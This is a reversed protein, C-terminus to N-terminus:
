EAKATIKLKDLAAKPNSALMYDMIGFGSASKTQAEITLSGPKEIFRAVAKGLTQANESNGLMSSIVLPTAGAYLAKLADPSAGQEKAAVDLYREFLGRNEVVITASKAKSSLLAASATGEDPSFLDPSVNGILGTLRVSGMDKGDMSFETIAIENTAENWTAAITASGDLSKYGLAQLQQTFEDSSNDPLATSVNRQEFRINTPIGNVPKDATIAVLGMVIRVLEDPNDDTAPAEIDLDTIRLTGLTPILSRIDAQDLDKLPKDGLAKLGNLTPAISFGTLSVAGIKLRSDEDAFDIGEVRTEAAQSGTAGTYAIRAISGTEKNNQGDGKLTIGTAEIFGADFAGLIDAATLLLRTEDESSTEEKESLEKLLALTGNWSDKTPRAMIDRGNVRAIQANFDDASDTVDIKEISFEGHLKSLPASADKTEYLRAFAPLDLDSVSTRGYSILTSGKGGTEEIATTEIVLSGVKGAVINTLTGNRYLITQTESGLKQIVKIEPIVVQKANIRALREAFPESGSSLLGEIESRALSVGTFDIRKAEYTFAGWTFRVNEVSFTDSSQAFAASWLSTRVAGVSVQQAGTDVVLDRLVAPEFQMAATGAMLALACVGSRYLAKM